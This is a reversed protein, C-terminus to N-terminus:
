SAYITKISELISKKRFHNKSQELAKRSIFDVPKGLLKELEEKIRVLDFLSHSSSEDFVYLIDLDSNETFDERLASGFVALENIKYRRCFESLKEDNINLNHLTM